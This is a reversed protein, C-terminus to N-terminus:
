LVYIQIEFARTVFYVVTCATWFLFMEPFGYQGIVPLFAGAILTGAGPQDAAGRRL